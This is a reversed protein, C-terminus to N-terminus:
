IVGVNRARGRGEGKWWEPDGLMELQVVGLREGMVWVWVCLLGDAEGYAVMDPWFRIALTAVSLLRDYGEFYPYQSGRWSSASMVREGGSPM